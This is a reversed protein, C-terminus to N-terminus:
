LESSLFILSEKFSFVELGGGVPQSDPSFFFGAFDLSSLLTKRDTGTPFFLVKAPWSPPSFNPSSRRVTRRTALIM